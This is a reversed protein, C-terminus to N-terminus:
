RLPLSIRVSSLGPGHDIRLEGGLRKAIARALTIGVGVGIGEGDLGSGTTPLTDGSVVLTWSGDLVAGDLSLTGERGSAFSGLVVYRIMRELWHPDGLIEVGPAPGGPARGLTLGRRAADARLPDLFEGLLVAPDMPRSDLDLQNAEIRALLLLDEVIAMLRENTRRLSSTIESPMATGQDGDALLELLSSTSTLPTRLEHSLTALFENKLTAPDGLERNREELARQAEARGTVDRGVLLHGRVEGDLSRLAFDLTLDLVETSSDEPGHALDHLNMGLLASPPGGFQMLQLTRANVECICLNEDIMLIAVQISDILTRLRSSEVRLCYQAEHLATVDTSYSVVGRVAPDDTLNRLEVHWTRWEGREGRVQIETEAFDGSEAVLRTRVQNLQKLGDPHVHAILDLLLDGDASPSIELEGPVRSLWHPAGKEDHVAIVFPSNRSVARYFEDADAEPAPDDMESEGGLRGAMAAAVLGVAQVVDARLAAPGTFELVHGPGAPVATGAPFREAVTDPTLRAETVGPIAEIGRVVGDLVAMRSSAPNALARLLGAVCEALWSPWAADVAVASEEYDISPEM